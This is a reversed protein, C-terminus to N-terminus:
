SSTRTTLLREINELTYLFMHEERAVEIVSKTFGFRSFLAYHITKGKFASQANKRLTFLEESTLPENEWKALGVLVREKNESLLAIDIASTSSWWAGFEPNLGFLRTRGMIEKLFDLCIDPFVSKVHEDLKNAILRRLEGPEGFEILELHPHVVGFWFKLYYSPLMYLGRKGANKEEGVPTIREVLGVKRLTELYKSLTPRSLGCIESIETMRRKRNGIAGMVAIYRQPERLYVEMLELASYYLISSKTFFSRYINEELSLSPDFQSLYIPVGGLVSFAQIKERMKYETFFLLADKFSLPTVEIERFNRCTRLHEVMEPMMKIDALLVIHVSVDKSKSVKVLADIFDRNKLLREAEDFVIVTKKKPVVSKCRNFFEDWTKCVGTIEDGYRHLRESFHMLISGEPMGRPHLYLHNKDRAFERLLTTKGIGREGWVVTVNIGEDLYQEELLHLEKQRGLLM